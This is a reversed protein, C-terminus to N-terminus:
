HKSVETPMLSMGLVNYQMFIHYNGKAIGTWHLHSERGCGHTRRWEDIRLLQWCRVRNRVFAVADEHRDTTYESVRMQKKDTTEETTLHTKVPHDMLIPFPFQQMEQQRNQALGKREPWEEGGSELEMIRWALRM